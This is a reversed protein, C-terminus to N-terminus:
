KKAKIPAHCSSPPMNGTTPTAFVSRVDQRSQVGQGPRAPARCASAPAFGTTPGTKATMKAYLEPDSQKLFDLCEQEERVHAAIQSQNM